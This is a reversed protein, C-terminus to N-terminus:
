RRAQLKRIEDKIFAVESSLSKLRSIAQRNPTEAKIGDVKESVATAQALLENFGPTDELGDMSLYTDALDHEREGRMDRSPRRAPVKSQSDRLASPVASALAAFQSVAGKKSRFAQWLRQKDAKSIAACKVALKRGNSAALLDAKQMGLRGYLAAYKDPDADGPLVVFYVRAGLDQSLRQAVDELDRKQDKSITKPGRVVGARGSDGILEAVKDVNARASGSLLGITLAATVLRAVTLAIPQSLRRVM